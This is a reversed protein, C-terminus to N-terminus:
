LLGPAYHMLLQISLIGFASIGTLIVLAGFLLMSLVAVSVRDEHPATQEVFRPSFELNNEMEAEGDGSFHMVCYM